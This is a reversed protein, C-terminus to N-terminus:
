EGKNILFERIKVFLSKLFKYASRSRNHCLPVKTMPKRFFLGLQGPVKVCYDKCNSDRSKKAKSSTKNFTDSLICITSSSFEIHLLEGDCRKSCILGRACDDEYDGNFSQFSCIEM